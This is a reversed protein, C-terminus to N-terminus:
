VTALERLDRFIHEPGCDFKRVSENGAIFYIWPDFEHGLRDIKGIIGTVNNQLWKAFYAKLDSGIRSGVDMYLFALFMFLDRGDKPCPDEKSYVDGITIDAVQTSNKGICSFGFDVLSITFKSHITLTQDAVKLTMFRGGHTEIMINSPKLDRHNMGLDTSLHWLMASLQLLLELVTGTLSAGNLSPLMASLPLATEFVEMSFAVSGDALKFVDHVAAAGRVFNGRDLSDKVIQQICAEYLLSKGPVLPRKIFVRQQHFSGGYPQKVTRLGLEVISFSSGSLNAVTELIKYPSQIYVSPNIINQKCPIQISSLFLPIRICGKGELGIRELDFLTQCTFGCDICM